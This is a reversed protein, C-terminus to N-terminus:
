ANIGGEIIFERFEDVYGIYPNPHYGYYKSLLQEATMPEKSNELELIYPPREGIYENCICVNFDGSNIQGELFNFNDKILAISISLYFATDKIIQTDNVKIINKCILRDALFSGFEEFVYLCDTKKVVDNIKELNFPQIKSIYYNM